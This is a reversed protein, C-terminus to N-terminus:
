KTLRARALANQCWGLLHELDGVRYRVADRGQGSGGIVVALLSDFLQGAIILNESQPSSQSKQRAEALEEALKDMQQFFDPTQAKRAM